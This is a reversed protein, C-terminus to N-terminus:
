FYFCFYIYLCYNSLLDMERRERKVVNVHVNKCMM